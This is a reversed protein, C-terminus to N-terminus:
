SMAGAGDSLVCAFWDGGLGTRGRYDQAIDSAAQQAREADALVIVAGGFGGGMQRAGFVGPAARAISALLDTETCTVDFDDRLSAHSQSMLAGAAGLDQAELAAAVAHVRANESVVHRARRQLQEPLAARQLAAADTDRLADVGLLAAAAECDRRRAGYGGDVIRHRVGSDVLFLAANPPLRVPTARLARCDLLLAASDVGHVSAFQDMPGCPAGVFDTEAEWAWRAVHDKDASAGAVHLLALAVAVELAASSSVGAGLPVDSIILLDCGPVTTGARLLAAAVAGVYDSWDGRKQFTHLPLEAEADLTMSRVRLATGGNPAVGVICRRDIAAPMAFGGSYDTHEGIINIRGPAAFLDPRAGFRADFRESVDHALTM